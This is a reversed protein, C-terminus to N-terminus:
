AEESRPALTAIAEDYPLRHEAQQALDRLTMEGAALEDAGLIGAYRAGLTNAQRMQARVSRGRSGITCPIDRARLETALRLAQQRGAEDMVVFYVVIQPQQPPEIGQEKLNLIVRELGTAFGVGPTASGGIQEALGDYRGGGGLASQAGVTAPWVEFVTHTYYDLGRVLKPNIQFPVDRLRLYDQVRDFHEQCEPSLYDITRPADATVSQCGPVKCDLVRLPNTTLRRQCDNCLQSARSSFYEMLAQRYAPRCTSDGISNLQVTLDRLGVGILFDWLLLIIEADALPDTDGIAECNFQHFERYRGAQPRDYRFANILSYLRVPAPRQQLNHQLYARMVPATGEARLALDNDGKDKFSYIEKDVIDTGEGVGRLFLSTDEITPTRIEGYGCRVAHRRAQEEVFRWYHSDEPLIDQTGRPSRFM